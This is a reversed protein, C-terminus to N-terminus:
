CAYYELRLFESQLTFCIRQIESTWSSHKHSYKANISEKSCLGGPLYLDGLRKWIEHKSHVM